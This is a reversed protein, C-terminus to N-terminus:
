SSYNHFRSRSFIHMISPEHNTLVLPLDTLECKASDNVPGPVPGSLTNESLLVTLTADEARHQEFMYDLKLDSVIDGSIVIFDNRIRNQVQRLAQITGWDRGHAGTNVLEIKMESPLPPLSGDSLLQNIRAHCKENTLM